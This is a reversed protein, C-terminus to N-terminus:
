PRARYLLQGATLGLDSLLEPDRSTLRGVLGCLQNFAGEPDDGEPDARFLMEKGNQHPVYFVDIGVVQGFYDILAKGRKTRCFRFCNPDIPSKTTLRQESATPPRWFLRDYSCVVLKQESEYSSVTYQVHKGGPRSRISM